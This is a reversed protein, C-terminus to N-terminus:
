LKAPVEAFVVVHTCGPQGTGKGGGASISPLLPSIPQDPVQLLARHVVRGGPAVVGHLEGQGPRLHPLQQSVCDVGATHVRVGMKGLQRRTYTCTHIHHHPLRKSGYQLRQAIEPQLSCLEMHQAHRAPRQLSTGQQVQPLGQPLIEPSTPSTNGLMGLEKLGPLSAPHSHLLNWVLFLLPLKVLSRSTKTLNQQYLYAPEPAKEWVTTVSSVSCLNEFLLLSGSILLEELFLFAYMNKQLQYGSINCWNARAM